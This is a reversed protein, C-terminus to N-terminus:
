RQSGSGLFQMGGRAGVLALQALPQALEPVLSATARKARVLRDLSEATM